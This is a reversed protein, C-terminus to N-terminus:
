IDNKNLSLYVQIKSIANNAYEANDMLGIAEFVMDEQGSWFSQLLLCFWERYLFANGFLKPFAWLVKSFTM